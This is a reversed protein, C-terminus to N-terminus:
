ENESLKLKIIAELMIQIPDFSPSTLKRETYNSLEAFAKLYNQNNLKLGSIGLFITHSNSITGIEELEWKSPDNMFPILYDIVDVLKKGNKNTYNWNDIERSLLVANLFSHANVNFSSYSLSKTRVEELPQRANEDIQNDLLFERAYANINTLEKENNLFSSAAAVQVAWWTSHNNGRQKEDLGYYSTTLWSLYDSYWSKIGDYVDNDIKNREKLLSVAELLVAFRRGDIIGVGRKKTRNRILQSYKLNPNMKTTEDVFWVRLMENIKGTFSYDDTLYSYYVLAMIGKYFNSAENKHDMFRDPNRIGDKRFYPADLDGEVPWWYPSDSYYDNITADDTHPAKYKTITYPMNEIAKNAITKLDNVEKKFKEDKQFSTKINELDSIKFINLSQGTARSTLIFCTLLVILVKIKM